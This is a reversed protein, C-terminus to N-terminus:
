FNLWSDVGEDFYMKATRHYFSEESLLWLNLPQLIIRRENKVQGQLEALANYIIDIEEADEEADEEATEEAM